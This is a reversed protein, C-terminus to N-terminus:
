FFTTDEQQQPQPTTRPRPAQTPRQAPRASPNGSGSANPAPATGAQPLPQGEVRGPTPVPPATLDPYPLAQTGAPPPVATGGEDYPVAEATQGGDTAVRDPAGLDDRIYAWSRADTCACAKLFGQRDRWLIVPYGERVGNPELLEGLRRAFDRGGAVIATRTLDGDAPALGPATWNAVPTDTWRRYLTWDRTLWLEAVTAREAATSQALGELDPRAFMVVRMEAGATRLKPGEERQFRMLADSDRHGVVYVPSGTVDGASVWPADDLLRQIEAQNQSVTVPQFRAFYNWWGWYGAGALALGVIILLTTWVLFRRM